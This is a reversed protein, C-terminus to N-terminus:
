NRIQACKFIMKRTWDVEEYYWDSNNNVSEVHSLYTKFATKAEIYKGLRMLTLGKDKYTDYRPTVNLGEANLLYQLALEMNKKDNYLNRLLRAKLIYDGETAINATINRSIIRDAEKFHQYDFELYANSTNVNSITLYYSPDIFKDPNPTGVNNIRSNLSPHTGSSYFSSYNGISISYMSLKSLVTAVADPSINLHKLILVAVRDAEDEQERSYALGLRAVISNAVSYSIIAASATIPGFTHNHDQSALYADGAAAIITAFGAWFEARNKRQEEKVINDVYHDLVFHAVEHTIVAILEEESDILSLMGTTIMMTGNPLCYANPNNQFIVKISLNGPRKDSLTVPHISPLLSQLYEELYKDNFFANYKNCYELFEISEKDAENRLNYRMGSTLLNHYLETDKVLVMSWIGSLTNQDQLNIRALDKERITFKKGNFHITYFLKRPESHDDPDSFIETIEVKTGPELKEKSDVISIKKEVTGRLDITVQAQSSIGLLAFVFSILVYHIIFTRM